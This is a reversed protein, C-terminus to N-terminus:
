APIRTRQTNLMKTFIEISPKRDIVPRFREVVFSPEFTRLRWYARAPNVIESLLVTVSDPYAPHLRGIERITYIQGAVPGVEDGYGSGDHVWTEVCCVKQGVHFSSM